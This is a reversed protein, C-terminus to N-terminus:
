KKKGHKKPAATKAPEADKSGGTEAAARAAEAEEVRKLDIRQIQPAISDFTLVGNQQPNYGVAGLKLVLGIKHKQILVDLEEGFAKSRKEFDIQKELDLAQEEATKNM